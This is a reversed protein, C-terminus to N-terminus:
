RAFAKFWRRPRHGGRKRRLLYRGELPPLTGSELLARDLLMLTAFLSRTEENRLFGRRTGVPIVRDLITTCEHSAVVDFRDLLLKRIDGSRIAEFPSALKGPAPRRVENQARKTLVNERLAPPLQTLALNYWRLREDLFQFQSEGIYDHVFFVGDPSLAGDVADLLHELELVHHLITQCVVLDFTRGGLDLANLDQCEYDLPLSELAAQRRAEAIAEPAVDVGTFSTCTRQKVLTREARGSGCGLSLGRAPKLRHEALWRLLGPKGVNIGLEEAAAQDDARLELFEADSFLKGWVESEGQAAEMYAARSSRL